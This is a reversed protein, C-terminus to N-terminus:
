KTELYRKDIDVYRNGISAICKESLLILIIKDASISIDRPQVARSSLM